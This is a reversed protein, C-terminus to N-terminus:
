GISFGCLHKVCDPEEIEFYGNRERDFKFFQREEGFGYGCIGEYYPELIAYNYCYEWLDTINNHLTDLADQKNCFFGWCRTSGTKAFYRDDPEIKEMVTIFWYVKEEM